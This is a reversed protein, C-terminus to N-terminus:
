SFDQLLNESDVCWGWTRIECEVVASPITYASFVSACLHVSEVVVGQVSSEVQTSGVMRTDLSGLLLSVYLNGSAFSCRVATVLQAWSEVRLVLHM